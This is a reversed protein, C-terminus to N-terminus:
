AAKIVRGSRLCATCVKVHMRAGKVIARVRRLHFDSSVVLLRRAGLEAATRLLVGAEEQTSPARHPVPLLAERPVGARLAEQEMLEAENLYSRL